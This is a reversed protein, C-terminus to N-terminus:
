EPKIPSGDEPRKSMDTNKMAEREAERQAAAEAEKVNKNYEEGTEESDRYLDVPIAHRELIMQISDELKFKSGTYMGAALAQEVQSCEMIAALLNEIDVVGTQIDVRSTYRVNFLDGALEEPRQEDILGYYMIDECYIEFIRAFWNNKIPYVLPAIMQVKEAIIKSVEFATKEGSKFQELANFLDVFHLKDIEERLTKNADMIGSPDTQGGYTFPAGNTMKAYIISKPSLGGEADEVSERDSLILPPFTNMETADYYGDTGLCLTRMSPLSFMSSSYGTIQGDIQNMVVVVYRFQKFGEKKAINKSKKEIYLSTFEMNDADLRKPDRKKNPFFAHIFEFQECSKSEDNYAKQIESSLNDLGFADAAQDATFKFGRRMKVPMGKSDLEWVCNAPDFIQLEHEFTRTDIHVYGVGVSTNTYYPLMKLYQRPMAEMILDNGKDGVKGYYGKLQENDRKKPDLSSLVGKGMQVTSSFIGAILTRQAIIGASTNPLGIESARQDKLLDDYTPNFYRSVERVLSQHSAKSAIGKEFAQIHQDAISRGM